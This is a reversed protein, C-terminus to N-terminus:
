ESTAPSSLESRSVSSLLVGLERNDISEWNIQSPSFTPSIITIAYISAPPVTFVYNRWEAHVVLSQCHGNFCITISVPRQDPRPAALALRVTTGASSGDLRLQAQRKTWRVRRGREEEAAYMGSVFGFDLGDGVNLTAPPRTSLHAWAWELMEVEDTYYGRFAQQAEANRGLRRLADGHLVNTAVYSPELAFAHEFAALAQEHQGLHQYFKGLSLWADASGPDSATAAQYATIAAPIDGVQSAWEAREMNWSRALNRAAWGHPYLWLLPQGVLMLTVFVTCLKWLRIHGYERVLVPLALLLWAAYPLLVPFIFHRYRGEGHTLLVVLIVYLLWGGLLATRRDRPALLLGCIGAFALLVYLADDLILAILFMGFPIDEFYNTQLFRDQIPKVLWLSTWNPRLKRLLITPDERLRLLGKNTAYDAREAPNTFSELTRFITDPDERPENFAWLNYSLGTEIPIFADYARYNRFTWPAIVIATCLVFLITGAVPQDLMNASTRQARGALLLWLAVFPLAMLPLSRTLSALGFLVGAIVTLRWNPRNAYCLLALLAGVFLATFFTEAMWLSAFTALTLLLAASAGTALGVREANSNDATSARGIKGIECGLLYYLYVTASSLAINPLAAWRLDDGALWLSGALWLPYLPARLWHYHEYFSWGRGALLDRAVALYEIEDNAPQHLPTRWWLWLRLLAGSLLIISLLWRHRKTNPWWSIM